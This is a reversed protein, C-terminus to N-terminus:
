SGYPTTAISVSVADTGVFAIEGLSLKKPVLAAVDTDDPNSKVLMIIETVDTTELSRDSLFCGLEFLWPTESEFIVDM